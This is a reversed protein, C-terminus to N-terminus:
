PFMMNMKEVGNNIVKFAPDKLRLGIQKETNTNM